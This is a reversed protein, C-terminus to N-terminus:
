IKILDRREVLWKEFLPVCIKFEKTIFGYDVLRAVARKQEQTERQVERHALIQEMVEREENDCFERWFITMPMENVEFVQEKANAVMEHTVNKQNSENALTVIISCITQLLQPHGKTLKYVEDTVADTYILNFDEVPNTILEYSEEKSLYDVKLRQAQPFYEDWNPATLDSLRLM